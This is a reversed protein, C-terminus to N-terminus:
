PSDIDNNNEDDDNNNYFYEPDGHTYFKFSYKLKILVDQLSAENNTSFKFCGYDLFIRSTDFNSIFLGDQLCSTPITLNKVDRLFDDRNEGDYNLLTNNDKVQRIIYMPNIVSKHETNTGTAVKINNTYGVNSKCLDYCPPYYNCCIPIFSSKSNNIFEVEITSLKFYLWVKKLSKFADIDDLINAVTIMKGNVVTFNNSKLNRLLLRRGHPGSDDGEGIVGTFLEFTDITTQKMYPYSCKFKLNTEKLCRGRYLKVIKDREEETLEEWRLKGKSLADIRNNYEQVVLIDDAVDHKRIVSM